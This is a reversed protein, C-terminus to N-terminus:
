HPEAIGRIVVHVPYGEFFGDNLFPTIEIKGAEDSVAVEIVRLDHSMVIGIGTVSKLAIIKNELAKRALEITEMM